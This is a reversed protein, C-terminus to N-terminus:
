AQPDNANFNFVDEVYLVDSNQRSRHQKKNTPGFTENSKPKGASFDGERNTISKESSSSKPPIVNLNQQQIKAVQNYLQMQQLENQLQQMKQMQIQAFNNDQILKM